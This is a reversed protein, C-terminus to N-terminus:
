LIAESLGINTKWHKVLLAEESSLALLPLIITKTAHHDLTLESTDICLDM